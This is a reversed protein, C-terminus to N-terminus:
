FAGFYTQRGREAWVQQSLVYTGGCGRAAIPGVELPLPFPFSPVPSAYKYPFAPFSLHTSTLPVSTPSPLLSAVSLFSLSRIRLPISLLSPFLCPLHTSYVSFPSASLTHAFCSVTRGVASHIYRTSARSGHTCHSTPPSHARSSLTYVQYKRTLRSHLTLDATLTRPLDASAGTFSLSIDSVVDVVLREIDVRESVVLLDSSGVV